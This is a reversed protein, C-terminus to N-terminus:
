GRRRRDRLRLTSAIFFIALVFGSPEPVASIQFDFTYHIAAPDTVEQVWFTYTGPGLPTTFGPGPSMAADVALDDLLDDGIGSGQGNNNGFIVGGLLGTGSGTDSIQTGAEVGFFSNQIAPSDYRSLIVQDLQETPGIVITWFDSITGTTNLSGVFENSGVTTAVFTPSSSANSLDGSVSEDYVVVAMASASFMLGSLVFGLLLCVPHERLCDNM